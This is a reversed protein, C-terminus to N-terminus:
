ILNKTKLFRVVHNGQTFGTLLLVAVQVMPWWMSASHMSLTQHHFQTERDKSFDAESIINKMSRQLHRIEMEIHSFHHEAPSQDEELLEEDHAAVDDEKNIELSFRMPRKTSAGAARICVNVEGNVPVEYRLTGEQTDLRETQPVSKNLLLKNKMESKWNTDSPNLEHVSFSIFTPSNAPHRGDLFIDIM